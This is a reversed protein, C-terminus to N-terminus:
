EPTSGIALVGGFLVRGEYHSQLGRVAVEGFHFYVCFFTPRRQQIRQAVPPSSRESLHGACAGKTGPRNNARSATDGSVRASLLAYTKDPRPDRVTQGVMHSAHGGGVGQERVPHEIYCTPFAWRQM